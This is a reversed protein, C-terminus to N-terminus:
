AQTPTYTPIPFKGKELVNQILKSKNDYVVGIWEGDEQSWVAFKKLRLTIKGLRVVEGQSRHAHNSQILRVLNTHRNEGIEIGYRIKGQTQTNQRQWTM